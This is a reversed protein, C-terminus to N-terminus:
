LNNLDKYKQKFLAKQMALKEDIDTCSKNDIMRQCRKFELQAMKRKMRARKAENSSFKEYFKEKYEPHKALKEKFEQKELYVERMMNLRKMFEEESINKRM